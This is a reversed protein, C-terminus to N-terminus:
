LEDALEAVQPNEVVLASMLLFRLPVVPAGPTLVSLVPMVQNEVHEPTGDRAFCVLVISSLIISSKAPLLSCILSFGFSRSLLVPQTAIAYGIM